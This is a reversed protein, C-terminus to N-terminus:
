QPQNTGPPPGVVGARELVYGQAPLSSLATTANIGTPRVMFPSLGAEHLAAQQTFGNTQLDALCQACNNSGVNCSLPVAVGASVVINFVQETTPNVFVCLIHAVSVNQAHVPLAAALGGFALLTALKKM